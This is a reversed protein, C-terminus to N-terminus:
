SFAPPGRPCRRSLGDHTNLAAHEPILVGIPVFAPSAQLDAEVSVTSINQIAAEGATPHGGTRASRILSTVHRRVARDPRRTAIRKFAQKPSVIHRYVRGSRQHGKGATGAEAAPVVLLCTTLVGFAAIATRLKALPPVMLRIVRGYALM